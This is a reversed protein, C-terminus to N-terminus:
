KRTNRTDPIGLARDSPPDHEGRGRVKNRNEWDSARDKGKKWNVIIGREEGTTMSRQSKSGEIVFGREQGRESGRAGQAHATLATLSGASCRRRDRCAINHSSM